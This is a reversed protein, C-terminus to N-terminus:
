NQTPTIALLRAPNRVLMNDIDEDTAGAARLYPVVDALVFDFGKGGYARQQIKTCVDQSLLLQSSYGKEILKSVVEAMYRNDVTPNGLPSPVGFLDFELTVGRKLAAELLFVKDYADGAIHGVIVRSLDAGEEELIDLMKMFQSGDGVWQHLTIAAGTRRSARAAARLQKVDDSDEPATVVTMAPIEGIIGSHVGTEGVGYVIDSVIEDAISNVSRASFEEPRWADRYWGAGMVVNLGSEASVRAVREPDRGLGNTTVDVLTRGGANKFYTAERLVEKMNEVILVDENVWIHRYIDALNNLRVKMRWLALKEETDPYERHSLAWREPADLPLSLDIFLHEHPLTIGVEEPAIPGQVTMIKGAMEARFAAEAGEDALAGGGSVGSALGVAAFIWALRFLRANM